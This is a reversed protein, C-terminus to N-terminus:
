RWQKGTIIMSGQVINSANFSSEPRVLYVDLLADGRAPSDIVQTFGNEWVLSNIFAQTGNNCCANGNWYVFPLKLHLIEQVFLELQWDKRLNCTM